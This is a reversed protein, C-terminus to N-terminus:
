KAQNNSEVEVLKSKGKSAINVCKQAVMQDRKIDFIVGSKTVGKMVQHLASPVGRM